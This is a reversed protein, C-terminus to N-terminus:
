SEDIWRARDTVPAVCSCVEVGPCPLFFWPRPACVAHSNKNVRKESEM